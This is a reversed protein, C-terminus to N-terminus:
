LIVKRLDRRQLLTSKNKISKKSVFILNLRLIKPMSIKTHFENEWGKLPLSSESINELKVSSGRRYSKIAGQKGINRARSEAGGKVQLSGEKGETM